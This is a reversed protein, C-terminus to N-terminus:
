PDDDYERYFPDIGRASPRKAPASKQVTMRGPDDSSRTASNARNVLEIEMPVWIPRSSKGPQAGPVIRWTRGTASDLLIAREQLKGGKAPVSADPIVQYRGVDAQNEGAWAAQALGLVGIFL